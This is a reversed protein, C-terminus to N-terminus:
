QKETGRLRAAVAWWCGSEEGPGGAEASALCQLAEQRAAEGDTSGTATAAQQPSAIDWFSQWEDLLDAMRFGERSGTRCSRKANRGSTRCVWPLFHACAVCQISSELVCTPTDDRATSLALDSSCVDSSWDSIRM